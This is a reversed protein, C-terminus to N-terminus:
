FLITHLKCEVHGRGRAWIRIPHGDKGLSYVVAGDALYNGDFNFQLINELGMVLWTCHEALVLVCHITVDVVFLFWISHILELQSIHILRLLRPPTM